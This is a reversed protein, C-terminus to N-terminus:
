AKAAVVGEEIAPKIGFTAAFGEKGASTISLARSDRIREVWGRDFAHRLLSAGVVGALHPRRESWDLCPRCFVRRKSAGGLDIGVGELFAHGAKTVEGGDEDLLICSREVLRDTIAVAIRGALHDYCTRANRLAEGGRWHNRHRAPGDPAVVALGELMHGVLPSALRFYRRRGQKELSLLGADSLKALHGSATPPSVGSVYALESATLAGGDMLSALMSARAPDGVLAAVQAIKPGIDM